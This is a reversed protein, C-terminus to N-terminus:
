LSSMDNKSLVDEVMREVPYKGEYYDRSVTVGCYQCEVKGSIKLGIPSSCNPCLILNKCM